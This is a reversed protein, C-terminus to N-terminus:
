TMGDGGDAQGCDAPAPLDWFSRHLADLADAMADGQPTVAHGTPAALIAPRANGDLVVLDGRAVMRSTTRRASGYGVQAREALDRYSGPGAKAASCLARVVPGYSGPPRM